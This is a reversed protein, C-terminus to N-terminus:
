RIIQSLGHRIADGDFLLASPEYEKIEDLRGIRLRWVRSHLHCSAYLRANSPRPLLSNKALRMGCTRDPQRLYEEAM